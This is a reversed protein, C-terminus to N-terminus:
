RIIESPRDRLQERMQVFASAITAYIRNIQVQIRREHFPNSLGFAPRREDGPDVPSPMDKLSKPAPYKGWIVYRSVTFLLQKDDDSVAIECERCLRTLDHILVLQDLRSDDLVLEPRRMILLGKLICELAYGALLLYEGVLSSDLHDALEQGELVRAGDAPTQTLLRDLERRNAMYAIEYIHDAARKHQEAMRGWSLPWRCAALFAEQRRQEIFAEEEEERTADSFLRGM